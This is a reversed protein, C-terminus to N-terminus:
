GAYGEVKALAVLDEADSNQLRDVLAIKKGIGNLSTGMVLGCSRDPNIWFRDHFTSSQIESIAANPAASKIASRMNTANPASVNNCIVTVDILDAQHPTLLRELLQHSTPSAAYFYPDIILLRKLPRLREIFKSIVLEIDNVSMSPSTIDEMAVTYALLSSIGNDAIYDLFDDRFEHAPSTVQRLQYRSAFGIEHMKLIFEEYSNTPDVAVKLVVDSM